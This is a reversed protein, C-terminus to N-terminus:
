AFELQYGVCPDVAKIFLEAHRTFTTENGRPFGILGQAVVGQPHFNWETPALIQYREVVGNSLAARHTLRGRAAEVTGLGVDGAEPPLAAQVGRDGGSLAESMHQLREPISALETLRAAMRTLLGNGYRPKLSDVLPHGLQRTLSSTERVTDAWDPLRIFREADAQQLRLNMAQTDIEPLPEVSADGLSGLEMAKVWALHRAAPTTGGEIWHQFDDVTGMERWLSPPMGFVAQEMTSALTDILLSFAAADFQLEPQLTFSGGQSGFCANRGDPMLQSLPAVREREVAEGNFGPWDILIRWLHERATELWVLMSEALAVPQDVGMGMAQRCATAAASAQATACVSYLMPIMRLVEDVRKGEFLLPLQLPRSSRIRVRRIHHDRCLLEFRLEGEVSV